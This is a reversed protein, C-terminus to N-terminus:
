IGYDVLRQAFHQTALPSITSTDVVVTGPQLAGALGDEGFLVKEVAGTNPLSLIVLQCDQGLAVPTHRFAAGAEVLALAKDPTLDCVNLPFHAALIRQGMGSGMRGLGILGVRLNTSDAETM